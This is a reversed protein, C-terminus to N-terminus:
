TPLGGVDYCTSIQYSINATSVTTAGAIVAVIWGDSTSMWTAADITLANPILGGATATTSGSIFANSKDTNNVNDNYVYGINMTVSTGFAGLFVYLDQLRCGVNFPMLGIITTTATGSPITVVGFSARETGDREVKTHLFDNTTGSYGVPVISPLTM